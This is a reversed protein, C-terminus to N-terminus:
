ITGMCSQKLMYRGCLPMKQDNTAPLYLIRLLYAHMRFTLFCGQSCVYHWTELVVLLQYTTLLGSASRSIKMLLIESLTAPDLLTQGCYLYQTLTQTLTKNLAQSKPLM